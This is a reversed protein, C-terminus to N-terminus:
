ASPKHTRFLTPRNSCIQPRQCQRNRQRTGGHQRIGDDAIGPVVLAPDPRGSQAKGLHDSGLRLLEDGVRLVDEPAQGLPRHNSRQIRVPAGSIEISKEIQVGLVRVENKAVGSAADNM